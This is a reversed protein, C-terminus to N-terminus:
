VGASNNNARQGLYFINVTCLSMLHTRRNELDFVDDVKNSNQDDLENIRVISLECIIDQNSKGDINEDRCNKPGSATHLLNRREKSNM